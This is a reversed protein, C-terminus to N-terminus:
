RGPEQDTFDGRGQFCLLGLGQSHRYFRGDLCHQHDNRRGKSDHTSGCTQLVFLNGTLNVQIVKDWDETSGEETPEFKLQSIGANNVLIDVQQFRDVAKKVLNRVSTEKSIDARIAKARSGIRQVERATDEPSVLDALVLSAGQRALALAIERGLGQASGTVLATKGKFGFLDSLEQDANPMKM